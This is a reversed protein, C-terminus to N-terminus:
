GDGFRVEGVTECQPMRRIEESSPLSPFGIRVIWFGFVIGRVLGRKRSGRSFLLSNPVGWGEDANPLLKIQLAKGGCGGM